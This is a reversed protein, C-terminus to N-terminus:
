IDKGLYHIHTEKDRVKRLHEHMIPDFLSLYGVFKLFNGNGYFFLKEQTGRFALNQAGLVRVLAILRELVQHWFKEEQTLLCLHEEDITKKRKLRTKPEKWEQFNTM